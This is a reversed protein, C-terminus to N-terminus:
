GLANHLALVWQAWEIVAAAAAVPLAEAQGTLVIWLQALAKYQAKAPLLIPERLMAQAMAKRAVQPMAWRLIAQALAKLAEQPVEQPVEQPMAGLMMALDVSAV